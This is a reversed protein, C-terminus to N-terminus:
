AAVTHYHHDRIEDLKMSVPTIVKMPGINALMITMYFKEIKMSLLVSKDKSPLYVAEKTNMYNSRLKHFNKLNYWKIFENPIEDYVELLNHSFQSVMKDLTEMDSIGGDNLIKTLTGVWLDVRDDRYILTIPQHYDTITERIIFKMNDDFKVLLKPSNQTKKRNMTTGRNTQKDKKKQTRRQKRNM